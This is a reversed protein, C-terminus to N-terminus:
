EIIMLEGAAIGLTHTECTVFEGNFGEKTSPPELVLDNLPM